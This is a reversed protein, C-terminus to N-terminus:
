ITASGIIEAFHAPQEITINKSFWNKVIKDTSSPFNIVKELFVPFSPPKNQIKAGKDVLPLRCDNYFQLLKDSGVGKRILYKLRDSDIGMYAM